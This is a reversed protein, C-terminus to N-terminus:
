AYELGGPLKPWSMPISAWAPEPNQRLDAAAERLYARCAEILEAQQELLEQDPYDEVADALIAETAGALQEAFLTPLGEILEFCERRRRRTCAEFRSRPHYRERAWARQIDPDTQYNIRGILDRTRTAIKTLAGRQRDIRSQAPTRRPRAGPAANTSRKKENTMTKEM